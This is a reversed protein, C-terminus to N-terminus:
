LTINNSTFVMIGLVIFTITRSHLRKTAHCHLLRHRVYRFHLSSVDWERSYAANTQNGGSLGSDCPPDVCLDMQAVHATMQLTPVPCWIFHCYRAQSVPCHDCATNVSNGLGLNLVWPLFTYPGRISSLSHHWRM